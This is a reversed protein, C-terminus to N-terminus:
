RSPLQNAVAQLLANFLKEFIMESENWQQFSIKASLKLFPYQAFIKEVAVADMGSLSLYNQDDLEHQWEGGSISIHYGSAALVAINKQLATAFLAKYAGKLHLTISFYNGWWFFSRVAFIDEMSFFRPYDLMVYPLGNYNEGKSIKAPIKLVEGPLGAAELAPKMQESLTGFLAYVKKIIKNKTLVWSANQVLQLEEASLQIKAANM